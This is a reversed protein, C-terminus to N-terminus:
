WQLQAQPPSRAPEFSYSETRLGLHGLIRRITVPDTITSIMQRRGGCGPCRLVDEGFVRLLLEAWTLKPARLQRGESQADAEGSSQEAKPVVLSRLPSGPALIGHYTLSHERPHPVLAALRELFTLPDLAFGQTGDRWPRRLHWLM